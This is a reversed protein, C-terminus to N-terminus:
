LCRISDRSVWDRRERSMRGRETRIWADFGVGEGVAIGVGVDVGVGRAGM